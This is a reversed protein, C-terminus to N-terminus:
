RCGPTAEVAERPLATCRLVSRNGTVATAIMLFREGSDCEAAVIGLLVQKIGIVTKCANPDFQWVIANRVYTSTNEGAPLLVPVPRLLTLTTGLLELQQRIGIPERDNPPKVDEAIKASRVDGTKELRMAIAILKSPFLTIGAAVALLPGVIFIWALLATVLMKRLASM